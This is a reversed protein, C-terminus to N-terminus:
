WMGVATGFLTAVFVSTIASVQTISRNIADSIATDRYISVVLNGIVLGTLSFGIGIMDIDM